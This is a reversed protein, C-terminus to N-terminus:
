KGEKAMVTLFVPKTKDELSIQKAVLSGGHFSYPHCILNYWFVLDRLEDFSVHHTLIGCDLLM